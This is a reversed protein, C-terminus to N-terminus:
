DGELPFQEVLIQFLNNEALRRSLDQYASGLSGGLDEIQPFESWLGWDVCIVVAGLVDLLLALGYRLDTRIGVFAQPVRGNCM